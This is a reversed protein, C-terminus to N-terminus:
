GTEAGRCHLGAHSRRECATGDTVGPAAVRLLLATVANPVGEANVDPAHHRLLQLADKLTLPPIRLVSPLQLQRRSTVIAMVDAAALARLCRTMSQVDTGTPDM